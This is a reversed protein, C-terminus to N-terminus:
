QVIIKINAFESICFKVKGNYTKLPSEADIIIGRSILYLKNKISTNHIYGIFATHVDFYKIIESAEFLQDGFGVEKLEVINM